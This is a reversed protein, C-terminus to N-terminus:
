AGRSASDFPTANPNAEVLDVSQFDLPPEQLLWFSAVVAACSIGHSWALPEYAVLLIVIIIQSGLFFGKTSVFWRSGLFSRFRMGALAQEWGGASVGYLAPELTNKLYMRIQGTRAGHHAWMASASTGLVSYVLLVGTRDFILAGALTAGLGCWTMCLLANQFIVRTVIESRLSAFEARAAESEESSLANATWGNASFGSM